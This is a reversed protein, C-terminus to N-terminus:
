GLLRGSFSNCYSSSVSGTLTGTRTWVTAGASLYVPGSAVHAYYVNSASDGILASQSTFAACQIAVIVYASSSPTMKFEANFEYWGAVPATFVGTTTDFSATDDTEASYSTYTTSGATVSASSSARFCPQKRSPLLLRGSSDVRGHVVGGTVIDVTDAASSHIGTDTDGSFAVGPAAVTGKTAALAGTMTDGARNVPTYGLSAQKTALSAYNQAIFAAFARLYNDLDPMIADSGSPSNSAATTSLDTIVTPVPM